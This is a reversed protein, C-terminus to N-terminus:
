EGIYDEPAEEFEEKCDESCFYYKTGEHEAAWTPNDEVEMGCVPDIPKNM